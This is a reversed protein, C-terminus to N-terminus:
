FGQNLKSQLERCRLLIKASTRCWGPSLFTTADWLGEPIWSFNIYSYGKITILSVKILWPVKPM